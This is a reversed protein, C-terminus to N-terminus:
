AGAKDLEELALELEQSTPVRKHWAKNNEIFSVGKGKVTHAIMLGPKGRIGKLRAFAAQLANHDHGDVEEVHWNFAEWKARLPELSMIDRIMGGQQYNNCDLICCLNDLRYHGAAMAAEWILGEQSEGDGILVYVRFRRDDMRAGLAMGVGASLGHGLSGSTFDVGRTKTMDPHGQLTSNIQRMTRLHERPFYGRHALAVYLGTYAHGKSLIFRDRDARRPDSPDIALVGFYLVALIDAVSLAAGPHGDGCTHITRLIDKRINKSTEKLDIASANM